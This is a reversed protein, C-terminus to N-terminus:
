EGPKRVRDEKREPANRPHPDHHLPPSPSRRDDDRDRPELVDQPRTFSGAHGDDPPAAKGDGEPEREDDVPRRPDMTMTRRGDESWGRGARNTGTGGLRTEGM